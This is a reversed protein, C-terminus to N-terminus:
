DYISLIDSAEKYNPKMEIAKEFSTKSGEKDGIKLKLIGEMYPVMPDTPAIQKLHNILQIGEYAYIKNVDALQSYTNVASKLLKVDHPAVLNLYTIEKHSLAAYALAKEHEKNDEHTLAIREYEYSLKERFVPENPSIEIAKKTNEIGGLGYLYDARWYNLTLLLLQYSFIIVAFIIALRFLNTKEARWLKPPPPDNISVFIAPYLFFLLSTATVSFGFFNTALISIYGALIASNIDRNEKKTKIKKYITIIVASILILYSVIGFTGTNAAYNLYENHAKNYVFNWESTVNHALPRYQYYSYAFTEPGTGFLPNNRWIDIAGQWILKRIDGSGTILLTPDTVTSNKYWFAGIGASIILLVAAYKKFKKAKTLAFYILISLVFAILGSRSKTFLLAIFLIISSYQWRKKLALAIPILAVLYAAMWNPQGFTAFVRVQVDQAWCSVDFSGKMILCSPSHGFHELIGYFSVIIGSLLAFKLCKIADKKSITNIFVFYLLTLSLITLLGGNFRSYYGFISTRIDISFYTSITQSLLFLLLPALFITRSKARSLTFWRNNLLNNIIFATFILITFIYLAIVKNFEFVESSKPFFILPMLFFLLHFLMTM